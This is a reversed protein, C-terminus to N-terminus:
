VSLLAKTAQAGDVCQQDLGIIFQALIAVEGSQHVEFVVDCIDAFFRSFVDPSSVRLRFREYIHTFLDLEFIRWSFQSQHSM